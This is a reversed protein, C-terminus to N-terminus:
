IGPTPIDGRAVQGQPCSCKRTESPSAAPSHAGSAARGARASSHNAGHFSKRAKQTSTLQVIGKWFWLLLLLGWHLHCPGPGAPTAGCWLLLGRQTLSPTAPIGPFVKQVRLDIERKRYKSRTLLLSPYTHAFCSPSTSTRRQGDGDSCGLM